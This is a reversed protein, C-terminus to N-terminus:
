PIQHMLVLPVLMLYIRLRSMLKLNKGRKFASSFSFEVHKEGTRSVNDVWSDWIQKSADDFSFWADVYLKENKADSSDTKEEPYVFPQADKVEGGNEIGNSPVPELQLKSVSQNTEVLLNM